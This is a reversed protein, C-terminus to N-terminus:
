HRYSCLLAYTLVASVLPWERLSLEEDNNLPTQLSQLVELSGLHENRHATRVAM